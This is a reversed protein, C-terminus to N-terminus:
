KVSIQVLETQSSEDETLYDFFASIFLKGINIMSRKDLNFKPHHNPFVEISESAGGVWVFTGLREQLYYAFDEM